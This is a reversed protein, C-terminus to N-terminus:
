GPDLIKLRPAKKFWDKKSIRLAANAQTEDANTPPPQSADGVKDDFTQEVNDSDKSSEKTTSTKKSSGSENFRTKKTKKGQNSVASPDEYQDDGRDRKKLVKDHNDGGKMTAEALLMSWTLADYLEHHTDNTMHSQSKHMKEYLIKKLEYESLSETAQIAFQGQSSSQGLSSLTKKLAEKVVHLLFQPLFNKVEKIVNAQVSEESVDKYNRKKSLEKKLEETHSQLVKKFADPLSSGLYNKVISPVQSKISALISTSHDVQKLEKVAKELELLDKSLLNKQKLTPFKLLHFNQLQYYLHQHHLQHYKHQKLFSLCKSLM